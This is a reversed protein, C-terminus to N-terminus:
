KGGRVVCSHPGVGRNGHHNAASPPQASTATVTPSNPM